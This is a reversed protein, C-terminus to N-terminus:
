LKIIIGSTDKSTTFHLNLKRRKWKRKEKIEKRQKGKDNEEDKKFSREKVPPSVRAKHTSTM